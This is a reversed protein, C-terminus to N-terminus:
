LDRIAALLTPDRQEQLIALLLRNLRQAIVARELADRWTHLPNECRDFASIGVNLCIRAVAENGELSHAHTATRAIECLKAFFPGGRVGEFYRKPDETGLKAAIDEDLPPLPAKPARLVEQPDLGLAEACAELLGFRALPELTGADRVAALAALANRVAETQGNDKCLEGIRDQPEQATMEPGKEIGDLPFVTGSKRM